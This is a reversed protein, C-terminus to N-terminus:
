GWGGSSDTLYYLHTGTGPDDFFSGIQHAIPAGSRASILQGNNLYAWLVHDARRYVDTGRVYAFPVHDEARCLLQEPRTMAANDCTPSLQDRGAM